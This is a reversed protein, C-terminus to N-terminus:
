APTSTATTQTIRIKPRFVGMGKKMVASIFILIALAAGFSFFGSAHHWTEQGFKKHIKAVILISTIRAANSLIAVPLAMCFIIIREKWSQHATMGYIYAILLLAVLSRIGSCGDDIQWDGWAGTPDKLQTGFHQTHIGILEGAHHALKCALVALESTMHELNPVPVIFCFLSLPFFFHRARAWGVVVYVGGFLMFPLGFVALRGELTRFGAIWLLLGCIFFALGWWGATIPEKKVKAWALWMFVPVMVAVMWGHEWNANEHNWTSRLWQLTPTASAPGFRPLQTYFWAIIGLALALLGVVKYKTVESSPSDNM